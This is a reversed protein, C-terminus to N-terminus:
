SGKSSKGYKGANGSDKEDYKRQKLRNRGGHDHQASNCNKVVKNVRKIEQRACLVGGDLLGQIVEVPM